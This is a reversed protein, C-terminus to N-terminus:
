TRLLKTGGDFCMKPNAGKGLLVFAKGVRGSFFLSAGSLDEGWRRKSKSSLVRSRKPSARANVHLNKVIERARVSLECWQQCALVFRHQEASCGWLRQCHVQM